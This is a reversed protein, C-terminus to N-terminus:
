YCALLPPPVGGTCPSPACNKKLVTFPVKKFRTSITKTGTRKIRRKQFCSFDLSVPNPGGLSMRKRDNLGPLNFILRLAERKVVPKGALLMNKLSLALPPCGEFPAGWIITHNKLKQHFPEEIFGRLRLQGLYEKQLGLRKLRFQKM